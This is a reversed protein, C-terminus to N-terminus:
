VVSKRDRLKGRVKDRQARAQQLAAEAEAREQRANLRIAEAAGSLESRASFMEKETRILDKRAGIKLEVLKNQREHDAQALELKALASIYEQKARGLEVKELERLAAEATPQRAATELVRLKADYLQRQQEARLEALTLVSESQALEGLADAGEVSDLLALTAGAAVTDGLRVQVKVVRGQVRPAIVVTREPNAAIKGTVALAEEAVRAQIVELKIGLAQRRQASLKIPGAEAGPTGSAEKSAAEREPEQKVQGPKSSGVVFWAGLGVLGVIVLGIVILRM